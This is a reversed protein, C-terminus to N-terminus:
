LFDREAHFIDFPNVQDAHQALFIKKYKGALSPLVKEDRVM